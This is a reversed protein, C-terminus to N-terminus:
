DPSCVETSGAPFIRYGGIRSANLRSSEQNLLDDVSSVPGFSDNNSQYKLVGNVVRYITVVHGNRHNGQDYWSFSILEAYYGHYSLIYSFFTSYDKCDGSRIEFFDEPTYSICGEHFVFTLNNRMYDLVKSPTDLAIVAEEFTSYSQLDEVGNLCGAVSIMGIFLIILVFHKNM